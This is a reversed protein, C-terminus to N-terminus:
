HGQSNLSWDYELYRIAPPGPPPNAEPAMEHLDVFQFIFALRETETAGFDDAFWKFIMSLHLTHTAPDYRNKAPDLLFRRAQDRFQAELRDGRYAERRLPPCSRAACVLAFHIRPERYRKRLIDHEIENLTYVRGAVRVFRRDWPTTKLLFSLVVGGRGLDRISRLPLNETVLQLTAANYTNIWFAIRAPDDPLTEPDTAAIQRLYANLRPDDRLAPYDVLGDSVHEALLATYLADDPAAPLPTIPLLGPLFALLCLHALHLPAIPTKM